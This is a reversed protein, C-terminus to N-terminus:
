TLYLAVKRDNKSFTEDFNRIEWVFFWWEMPPNCFFYLICLLLSFDPPATLGEKSKLTKRGGWFICYLTQGWPSQTKKTKSYEGLLLVANWCPSSLWLITLFSSTRSFWLKSPFGMANVHSNGWGLSVNWAWFWSFIRIQGVPMKFFYASPHISYKCIWM